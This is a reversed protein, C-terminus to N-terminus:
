FFEEQKALNEFRNIEKRFTLEFFGTDGDRNKRISLEALNKYKEKEPEYLEQRHIFVAIDADQEISGSDRLDSLRPRRVKSGDKENSRSLQSILIFPINLKKAINKFAGTAEAVALDHRERGLFKLKQLYDLVVFNIHKEQSFKIIRSVVEHCSINVDFDIYLNKLGLSISQIQTFDRVDGRSLQYLNTGTESAIMRLGLRYQGMELSFILGCYGSRAANIAINTALTTKGHSPRGAIVMLDGPRMGLIYKDFLKYGTKIGTLDNFNNNELKEICDAAVDFFCIPGHSIEESELKEYEGRVYASVEDSSQGKEIRKNAANSIEILRRKNYFHKIKKIYFEIDTAIPAEMIFQEYWFKWDMGQEKLLTCIEAILIQNSFQQPRFQEYLRELIAFVKKAKLGPTFHEAHINTFIKDRDDPLVLATHLLGDEYYRADQGIM